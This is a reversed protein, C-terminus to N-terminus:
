RDVPHRGGAAPIGRPEACGVSALVGLDEARLRRGVALVQSGQPLDQGARRINEGAVVAQTLKLQDGDLLCNEQMVVADAGPPVPTGTFIRAATGPAVEDGSSGAPIRQTVKLTSSSDEARLAYGDMVSNDDNPVPVTARVDEALTRGLAAVLPVTEVDTVPLVDELILALAEDLPDPRGLGLREGDSSADRVRVVGVFNCPRHTSDLQERIIGDWATRCAGTSGPMCFIVTNNAFGGLARSQVTSSGIEEFSLARSYWWFGRYGQRVPRWRRRRVTAASFGTGGTVLVADIGADAIWASLVARIQYVDDKVIRHDAM